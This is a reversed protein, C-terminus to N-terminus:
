ESETENLKFPYDGFIASLRMTQYVKRNFKNSLAIMTVTDKKLTIYSSTNGHWWGNHYFLTQGTKWERLRIGLGYNKIGNKEYSYGKYIENKLNESIFDNSYTAIDFKLLDQPTSFINKDGYIADLYDFDIKKNTSKYSQSVTEKDKEFDLVFTNEMQLPKFVLNHMAQPFSLNTLKEIVLALIAYNTNCYTFKSNPSFELPIKYDNMLTIIDENHLIKSQNWITNTATFYEYKALGSRQNLLMKITIKEYPFTALISQVKDELNIKKTDILRFIAAATLVKSISALHLPTTKTIKENTSFNAMGQYKEFIVQGNKAILFSGNFENKPNIHENFFSAILNNKDEIYTKSLKSFGPPLVSSEIKVLQIKNIQRTEKKEQKKCSLFFISLLLALAYKM